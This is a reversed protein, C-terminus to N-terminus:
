GEEGAGCGEDEGCLYIGDSDDSRVVDLEDRQVCRRGEREHM